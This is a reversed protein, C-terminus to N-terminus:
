TFRQITSSLSAKYSIQKRCSLIAEGDYPSMFLMTAPAMVPLVHLRRKGPWILELRRLNATLRIGNGRICKRVMPYAGSVDLSTGFLIKVTFSRVWCSNSGLFIIFLTAGRKFLNMVAASSNRPFNLTKSAYDSISRIWCSFWVYNESQIGWLVLEYKVSTAGFPSLIAAVNIPFEVLM